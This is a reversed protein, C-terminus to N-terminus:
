YAQKATFVSHPQYDHSAKPPISEVSMFNIVRIVGYVDDVLKSALDKEAANRAQGGLTVVGGKTEVTTNLASTSRHTLLTMKVLATISADDITDNLEDVRQGITKGGSVMKDRSITMENNISKVGDVDKIYEATLAKEAESSAEGRLTVKGNISIIETDVANVNKHFLLTSKAKAIIWSDTNAAPIERNM